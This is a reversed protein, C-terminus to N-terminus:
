KSKHEKLEEKAEKIKMVTNKMEIAGVIRGLLFTIICSGVIIINDM